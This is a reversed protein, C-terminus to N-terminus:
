EKPKTNKLADAMEDLPKIDGCDSGLWKGTTERHQNTEHGYAMGNFDYTSTLSEGNVVTGKMTGRGTIKPGDCVVEVSYSNGSRNFNKMQCESQERDMAPQDREVMKKSMCVRHVFSGGAGPMPVGLKKMKELQEPTLQPMQRGGMDSKMTMEWLGPKMHDAAGALIPFGSIIIIIIAISTIRRM